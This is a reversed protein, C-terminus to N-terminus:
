CLEVGCPTHFVGPPILICGILIGILYALLLAKANTDPQTKAIILIAVPPMMVALLGQFYYTGIIGGLITIAGLSFGAITAIGAALMVFPKIPSM